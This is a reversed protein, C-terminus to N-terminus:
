APTVACAASSVANVTATVDVSAGALVHDIVGKKTAGTGPFTTGVTVNSASSSAWTADDRAAQVGVGIKVTFVDNDVGSIGTGTPVGRILTLTGTTTSTFVVNTVFAIETTSGNDIEIHDGAVIANASSLLDFGITTAAATYTGSNDAELTVTGNTMFVKRAFLRDTQDASLTVANLNMPPLTLGAADVINKDGMTIAVYAPTAQTIDWPGIIGYQFGVPQDNDPKARFNIALEQINEKNSTLEFTPLPFAKHFIIDDKTINQDVGTPHFRLRQVIDESDRIKFGLGGAIQGGSSIIELQGLLLTGNIFDTDSNQLTMAINDDPIVGRPIIDNPGEVQDSLVDTFVGKIPISVSNEATFGLKTDGWYVDYQRINFGM